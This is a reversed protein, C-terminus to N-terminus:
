GDRRPVGSRHYPDREVQGGERLVGWTDTGKTSPLNAYRDQVVKEGLLPSKDREVAQDMFMYDGDATKPNSM